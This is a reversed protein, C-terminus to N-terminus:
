FCNGGHKGEKSQNRVTVLFLTLQGSKKVEVQLFLAGGYPSTEMDCRIKNPKVAYTLCM